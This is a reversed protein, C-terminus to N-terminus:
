KRWGILDNLVSFNKRPTKFLIPQGVVKPGRGGEWGDLLVASSIIVFVSNSWVVRQLPQISPHIAGCDFIFVFTSISFVSRDDFVAQFRAAGPPHHIFTFSNLIFFISFLIVKAVVLGRKRGRWLQVDVSQELRIISIVCVALATPQTELCGALLQCHRGAVARLVFAVVVPKQRKKVVTKLRWCM